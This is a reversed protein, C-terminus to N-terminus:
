KWLLKRLNEGLKADNPTQQIVKEIEKIRNVLWTNESTEATIKIKELLKIETEM